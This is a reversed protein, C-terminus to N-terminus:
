SAAPNLLRSVNPPDMQLDLSINLADRGWVAMSSFSSLTHHILHQYVEEKKKDM